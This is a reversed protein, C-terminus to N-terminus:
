WEKRLTLTEEWYIIQNWNGGIGSETNSLVSEERANPNRGFSEWGTTNEIYFSLDVEGTGPDIGTVEVGATFSGLFTMAADADDSNGTGGFNYIFLNLMDAKMQSTGEHTYNFKGKEFDPVCSCDDVEEAVERRVRDAWSSSQLMEVLWEGDHHLTFGGPGTANKGSLWELFLAIASGNPCSSLGDCGPQNTEVSLLPVPNVACGLGGAAGLLEAAGSGCMLPPEPIFPGSSNGGSDDSGSGSHQQPKSKPKSYPKKAAGSSKLLGTPDAFTLPSNNGYAYGNLQQGDAHNAIPDVSLFRGTTPNYDRAGIHTYGTPDITGRVYGNQGLWIPDGSAATTVTHLNNGYSDSYRRTVEGTTCDFAVTGTGHHDALQLQAPGGASEIRTVGGPLDVARTSSVTGATKNLTIEVDAVYLTTETNTSRMIRAGDANYFFKITGDAVGGSVAGVSSTAAGTTTITEVKGSANWTLDQAFGTSSTVSTTNGVEDYGFSSSESNDTDAVTELTHATQVGYTYTWTQDVGAGTTDHVTLSTRNGATDFDYSQWYAAAGDVGTIEPGDACADQDTGVAATTWAETLRRLGDYIYCEAQRQMGEANASDIISLVNGADDYDYTVNALTGARDLAETWVHDLRNAENYTYTQEIVATSTPYQASSLLGAPEYFINTAYTEGTGGYVTTIRSLQDREYVVSESDLGGYASWSKGAVSGDIYYSTSFTYTGALADAEAGEIIVRQSVPQYDWNRTNTVNTVTLGDEYAVTGTEYGIYGTDWVRRTLQAGTNAAGDWTEIPRSLDDYVTTITQGRADTTATVNGLVDYTYTTTGTDPDVVQIKRGRQDYTFAWVNADFDTVTALNGAPTYTYATAQYDGTPENNLYQRLETTQGRADTTTTTATGGEPATFTTRDAWYTTATRWLEQGAEATINTTARSLDDYETITQLDVEGSDVILLTQAPAGTAYYVDRVESARGLADYITDTVLRGNDPGTSQTQRSRLLGDFIEISETYSVRDEELQETTVAVPATDSVNYAFRLYPNSTAIDPNQFPMWAETMRGLPDYLLETTKGNADTASLELHRAPDFVVSSVHGLANTITQGTNRGATDTYTTTTTNGAADAFTLARGYTDYTTTATTVYVPTTGDHSELEQIATVLGKVPAAGYAGGDYSTRIDAIVDVSRDPTADCAVAVTEVRKTYNILYEGTNRTYETRTCQNDASTANDGFDDVTTALGYTTDYDTDTSTRRWTGDAKLTDTRTTNSRVFAAELDGWSHTDTATVHRWYDSSTKAILQGDDYTLSDLVSGALQDHDTHTYGLADTLTISRTGGNGNDDGHMGQYYNTVQKTELTTNPAGITTVTGYGRWEAWTFTDEDGIGKYRTHRWAPDTYTYRTVQDPSEGTRDSVTIEDVVYKHFWDTIDDDKSAPEWIVPFCRKKNSKPTPTTTPTCDETSYVIDIQGGTDTYITALRPRILASINDGTEDVRNEKQVPLLTTPPLTIDPGDGAKGTRTISDLWLTRTLDGNSVFSHTLKWHDVDTYAGDTHVQTTIGTLRKRTWFTPSSQNSECETGSECNRDWPVDPWDAATDEDLASASCDVSDDYELCREVVTFTVRAPATTYADGERLGYDIRKLYGGRTYSDGNVDTDGHRAYHNTEKAYYYAMAAGTPDVVYDLNWRWAQDCYADKFTSDYCPEGSDDGFVPVTWTSGTTADGSTHGPLKHRGFYYQTGDLTTVKWYEGNNDGNDAGTLREVKSGDDGSIRWTNGDKVLDGSAGGLVINANDWAWCQDGAGPETESHGDDKCSQYSREIYGPEYTFGEGIWSGQNNTAATRGDSTQSSYALTIDPALGGIVPPVEIGYSWQFAGSSGGHTWEATPALATASYDGQESSEGAALATVTTATTTQAAADDSTAIMGHRDASVLNSGGRHGQDTDVTFTLTQTEGNNASDVAVAESACEEGTGPACDPLNWAGLRAGYSGGYYAAMSAYGVSVEVKGGSGAVAVLLGSVGAEEAQAASLIGVEVEDPSNEDVTSVTVPLGGLDAEDTGDTLDFVRTDAEPWAAEVPTDTALDNGERAEVEAEYGEAPDDFGPHEPTEALYPLEMGGVIFGAMLALGATAVTFRRRTEALRSTLLLPQLQPTSM